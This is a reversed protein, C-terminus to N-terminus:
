QSGTLARNAEGALEPQVKLSLARQLHAKASADKLNRLAMGLYFETEANEPRQEAAKSLLDRARSYDRHRYLIIGAAKAVEPDNPFAERAPTVLALGSAEGAPAAACLLILHREAPAFDPYAKLVAEFRRTALPTDGRHEDAVALAMLAPVNEPEAAVRKELRPADAEAAAPDQALAVLQGFDAAAPAVPGAAPAAAALAAESAAQGLDGVSYAARALALHLAPDDPLGAEAEKLLGAAWPYEHLRFALGGLAASVRPDDPALNHASKAAEFAQVPSGKAEYAGALVIAAHADKPNARVAREAADVAKDLQGQGQYVLALRSLVVPDGPEAALRKELLDADGPRPHAPDLELVAVRSAAAEREPFSPGVALARAFAARAAAEDGLMYDAMALHYQASPDAPLAAASEQLLTRAWTFQHDGFALWGLTDAVEPDQPLAKRARRALELGKAPDGLKEAYLLALNNLAGGNDPALALVKEYADRAAEPHGARTEITGLLLLTDLDRPDRKVAERINSAAVDLQDRTLFLKALLLYPLPAEPKLRIATEAAREAEGDAHRTLLSRALLSYYEAVNPSAAILRNVRGEAATFNKDGLDLFVLREIAPFYDPQVALAAEFSQRADALRGLRWQAMGMQQRPKPDRPAAAALAAYIALADDADHQALYADALLYRAATEAPHRKLVPGLAAIAGGADGGRLDLDALMVAAEPFDPQWQLATTLASKGKTADGAALYACALEFQLPPDHPLLTAAHELHTVAKAAEGQKLLLDGDLIVAEPYAPERDLVKQILAASDNTRGERRDLNALLMLAPLYDPTDKIMQELHARAAAPDGNQIEFQAYQLRRPSRPPAADSASKYAQEAAHADKEALSIAALATYAPAFKPDAAVARRLLAEAEVPRQQHLALVGRATLVPARAQVDAPLQDLRRLAAAQAAPDRSSEVLLLPADPQGPDRDLLQGAEAAAEKLKGFALYALGLRVRVELNEPELPSATALLRASKAVRGEEFYIVGLRGMAKPDRGDIRLANLYEIEAEDYRGAAFFQDAKRERRHLKAARTCGTAGLALLGLLLVVTASRRSPASNPM